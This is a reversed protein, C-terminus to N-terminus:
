TESKRYPLTAPLDALTATESETLIGELAQAEVALRSLSVVEHGPVPFSLRSPVLQRSSDRIAGELSQILAGGAQGEISEAIPITHWALEPQRGFLDLM